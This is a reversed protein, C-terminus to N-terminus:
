VEHNGSRIEKLEARLIENELLTKTHEVRGKRWHTYILVCSLIIGTITAITGLMEPILEMADVAGSFVTAVVTIVAAKVSEVYNLLYNKVSM